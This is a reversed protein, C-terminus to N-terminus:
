NLMAKYDDADIKITTSEVTLLSLKTAFPLMKKLGSTTLNKATTGDLQLKELRLDLSKALEIIHEDTLGRIDDLKLIKLQQMKSIDNIAETDITGNFLHMNAIPIANTTLVSVLLATSEWNLNFKLVNLSKLGGLYARTETLTKERVFFPFLVDLQLEQLNPRNQIITHMIEPARLVDNTFSRFSIKMLSLNLAIINLFLENSWLVENVRLEKLQNFKMICSESGM